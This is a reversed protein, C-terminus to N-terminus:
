SNNGTIKEKNGDKIEEKAKTLLNHIVEAISKRKQKTKMISLTEWDRDSVKITKM